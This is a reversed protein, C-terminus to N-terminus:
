VDGSRNPQKSEHAVCHPGLHNWAIDCRAALSGLSYAAPSVVGGEPGFVGGRSLLPRM